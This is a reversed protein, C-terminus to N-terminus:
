VIRFCSGKQYHEDTFYAELVQRSKENVELIVRYSGRNPAEGPPASNPNATGVDFEYYVCGQSAKPLPSGDGRGVGFNNQFVVLGAPNGVRQKAAILAQRAVVPLATAPKLPIQSKAVYGSM